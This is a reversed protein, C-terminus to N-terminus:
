SNLYAAHWSAHRLGLLTPQHHINTKYHKPVRLDPTVGLSHLQPVVLTLSTHFTAPRGISSHKPGSQTFLIALSAFITTRWTVCLCRCNLASQDHRIIFSCLTYWPLIAKWRNQIPGKGVTLIQRIWLLLFTTRQGVWFVFIQIQPIWM